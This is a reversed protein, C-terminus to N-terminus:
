SDELIRELKQVVLPWKQAMDHLEWAAHRIKGKPGLHERAWEEIPPRALEWMNVKPNLMRGVGEVVVLTKQLMILQPQTQMDFMETVQFLQGLLRAMSVQHAPRDLVPRGIAMCAQAFEDVNTNPPVYGARIHVEAVHRYDGNLFGNFIEAVYMRQRWDLRGMIGFDVAAINGQKDVFVNGPHLDAHFFGDRFAHKFFHEAFAALVRNPDYGAIRLADVNHIPVGEIWETVLVRQSTLIWYPEPVRFGHDGVINERMETIAAAEYRLDLEFAVSRELTRVVEPLKLRRASPFFRDAMRAAWKFFALDRAFRARV